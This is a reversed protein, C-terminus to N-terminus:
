EGPRKGAEPFLWLALIMILGVGAVHYQVPDNGILTEYRYMYAALAAVLITLVIKLYTPM